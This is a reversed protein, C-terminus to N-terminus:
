QAVGDGLEPQRLLHEVGFQLWQPVCPDAEHAFRLEGAGAVVGVQQVGPEVGHDDAVPARCARSPAPAARSQAAGFEETLRALALGTRKVPLTTTTPSPM